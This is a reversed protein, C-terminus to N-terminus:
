RVAMAALLRNVELELEQQPAGDRVLVELLARRLIGAATRAMGPARTEDIGFESALMEYTAGNGHHRVLVDWHVGQGSSVCIERARECARRMVERAWTSEFREVAAPESAPTEDEVDLTLGARHRRTRSEELLHYLFGNILWRRFPLGSTLWRAFYDPRDLRSAFFGAVLDGAEGLSRYSSGRLYAELAPGYIEMVFINAMRRGAEGSASQTALWDRRTAPFVGDAPLEDNPEPM